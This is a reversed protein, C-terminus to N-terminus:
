PRMGQTQEARMRDACEKAYGVTEGHQESYSNSESVARGVGVKGVPPGAQLTTSNQTTTSTGYSTGAVGYRWQQKCAVRSDSTDTTGDPLTGDACNVDAMLEGDEM